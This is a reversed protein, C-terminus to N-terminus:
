LQQLFNHAVGVLKAAGPFCFLQQSQRRSVSHSQNKKAIRFRRHTASDFDTAGESSVRFNSESHTHVGPGDISHGVDVCVHVHGAASDIHSLAHHITTIGSM